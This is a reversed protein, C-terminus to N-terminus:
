PPATSEVEHLKPELVEGAHVLSRHLMIFFAIVACTLVVGTLWHHPRFRKLSPAFAMLALAAALVTVADWSARQWYSGGLHVWMGFEDFTLAMGVGYIAAAMGRGRRSPRRFILYAGLGSLLFIGYNLHHIHTGGLHVYLDPITRAMILFVIIRAAVFTLLFAVLALRALHSSDPTEPVSDALPETAM